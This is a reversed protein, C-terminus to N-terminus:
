FGGTSYFSVGNVVVSYVSNPEANYTLIKNTVPATTEALRKPGATNTVTVTAASGVVGFANLNYTIRQSNGYNVTILTLRRNVSDYGVITNHDNSGLLVNGPRLFRTFQAFTFYKQYVWQPKGREASLQDAPDAYKANILGWGSYPEIPQWYVWGTPRLFNIDETISQALPMGGGDPDGVESMWLRKPGVSARLNQRAANDRWLALGSYGHVNVKNVLTNAAVLTGNVTVQRNKLYESTVTGQTMANEDSSSILSNSLGRSNLEERLYGLIEAQVDDGINVGEQDKPYTWWGASPENFPALSSVPIGWQDQAHKVVTALYRAYDRRNWWQLSGGASSKENTMWWMPANSFFEVTAGRNVAAHLISRQNADRSWDFSHSTPSMNFWDLWYGNIDKYWPYGAPVNEPVGSIDNPQGGGGVNYRVINLWLGPLNSGLLPTTKQTFLIDSYTEQYASNGVGNAWWALSCGFGEWRGRFDSKDIFVTYDAQAMTCTLGLAVLLTSRTRMTGKGALPLVWVPLLAVRAM